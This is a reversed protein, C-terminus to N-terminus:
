MRDITVDEMSVPDELPEIHTSVTINPISTRIDKEIRELLNHGNQVTWKGPVLIHFSIFRRSGSQRTRIGHYQIGKVCYKELISVAKKKEDASIATDMFGIASKKILIVGTVVINIAVLIAVIPDLIQIQTIGVLLVGTIVGVSTWVDTLLHHGDAELTISHHKKGARLLKIAIIFNILSAIVSIGIGLFAQEIIKPHLIRDFAALGISIAALVILVGEFVSSFYEAKSHGYAHDEDPPKEALKLAFLAFVAAALNILSELADSLLGVSGTVFYAILKLFITVIATGISLWAYGTLSKSTM